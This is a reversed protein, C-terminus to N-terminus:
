CFINKSCNEYFRVIKINSTINKKLNDYMDNEFSASSLIIYNFKFKNIDKVNIIKRKLFTFENSIKNTDIFIIEAQLSNINKKCYNLLNKSHTGIGYIAVKNKEKFIDLINHKIEEIRRLSMNLFYQLEESCNRNKLILNTDIIKERNKNLELFNFYSAGVYEMEVNKIQFIKIYKEIFKSMLDIIDDIYNNRIEDINLFNFLTIMSAILYKRINANEILEMNQSSKIIKLEYEFLKEMRKFDDKQMKQTTCSSKRIRYTHLTNMLNMVRNAKLLCEMWFSVDGGENNMSLCNDKLFKNRYVIRWVGRTGVHKNGGIQKFFDIGNFVKEEDVDLYMKKSSSYNMEDLTKSGVFLLDLNNKKVKDYFIEFAGDDLFDDSDITYIYEGKAEKFGTWIGEFPGINKNLNILKINPYKQSYYEAILESGDNSGNNVLILEFSEFKQNIVSEISQIIYKKANYICIVISIKCM